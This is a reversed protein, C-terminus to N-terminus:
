AVSAVIKKNINSEAMKVANYIMNKIAVPSSGGHGVMSIGNVGLFPVGGVRQYDFPTFAEELLSIVLGAKEKDLQRKKIVGMLLMKLADPISEGFKLLINGTIGDCVFVDAQGSLIDRGELNGIFNPLAQLLVHAKKLTESGKEKEEGVNLLGVRPTEIGMIDRAFINGMVGFQYLMEPKVELNAGADIMLGLGKVTPYFTAITPRIVGDLRGLIFASAALLAGTNGASVFGDVAGKQHMGLGVVISSRPKNKVAQAPSEDMGIIEPADQLIIRGEPYDHKELEKRIESEPGTLVATIDDNENVALVAGSVPNQPYYDGGTADVAIKMM